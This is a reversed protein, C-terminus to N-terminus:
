SVARRAPLFRETLAFTKAYESFFVYFYLKLFVNKKKFIDLKSSMAQLNKATLQQNNRTNTQAARTM